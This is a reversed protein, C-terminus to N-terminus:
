FGEALTNHTIFSTVTTTMTNLSAPRYTEAFSACQWNNVVEIVSLGDHVRWTVHGHPREHDYAACLVNVHHGRRLLESALEFAYIESGAVHRPLFDHIVHLLRLPMQTEGAASQSM